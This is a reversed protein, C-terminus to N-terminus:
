AKNIFSNTKKESNSSGPNFFPDCVTGAKINIISDCLLHLVHQHHSIVLSPKDAMFIKLNRAVLDQMEVDLASLFELALSEIGEKIIVRAIGLRQAQGGSVSHEGDFITNLGDPLSKGM